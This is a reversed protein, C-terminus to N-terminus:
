NNNKKKIIRRGGLDVCLLDDAADSTYLVASGGICILAPGAGGSQIPVVYAKRERAEGPVLTAALQEITPAGILASIALRKQFREDIQAFIRVAQLSTGGLDFFDERVGIPARQFVEEWIHVLERELNTRPLMTEPMIAGRETSQM